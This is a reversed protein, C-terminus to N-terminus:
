QLPRSAEVTGDKSSLVGSIRTTIRKFRGRAEPSRLLECAAICIAGVVLGVMCGVIVVRGNKM